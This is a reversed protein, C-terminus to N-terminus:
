RNGRNTMGASAPMTRGHAHMTLSTLTRTLCASEPRFGFSLADSRLPTRLLPLHVVLGYSLSSSVAPCVSSGAICLHLGSRRQHPPLGAPQPTAHSLSAPPSDPPHLRFPRFATCTFRPSSRSPVPATNMSLSLRLAALTPAPTLAGMTALFRRYHAHLSPRAPLHLRRLPLSPLMSPVTGSLTLSALSFRRHPSEFGQYRWSSQPCGLTVPFTLLVIRMGEEGHSANTEKVGVRTCPNGM